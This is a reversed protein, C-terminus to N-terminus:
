SGKSSRANERTQGRGRRLASIQIIFVGISLVVIKQPHGRDLPSRKSHFVKQLNHSPFRNTGIAGLNLSAVNANASSRISRMRVSPNSNTGIQGISVVTGSVVNRAGEEGIIYNISGWSSSSGRSGSRFRRSALSNVGNSSGFVQPLSGRKRSSDKNHHAATRSDVIHGSSSSSRASVVPSV